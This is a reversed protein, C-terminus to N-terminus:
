RPEEEEESQSDTIFNFPPAESSGSARDTGPWPSVIGFGVKLPNFKIHLTEFEGEPKQDGKIPAPSPGSPPINSDDDEPALLLNPM